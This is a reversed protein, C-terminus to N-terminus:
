FYIFDFVRVQPIMEEVIEDLFLDLLAKMHMMRVDHLTYKWLASLRYLISSRTAGLLHFCQSIFETRINSINQLPVDETVQLALGGGNSIILSNMDIDYTPDSFLNRTCLLSLIREGFLESPRIGRLGCESRLQLVCLLAMHADVTSMSVGGRAQFRKQLKMIRIDNISPWMDSIFELTPPVEARSSLRLSRLVDGDTDDSPRRALAEHGDAIYSLFDIGARIIEKASSSESM